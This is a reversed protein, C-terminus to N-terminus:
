KDHKTMQKIMVSQDPLDWSIGYLHNWLKTYYLYDSSIMTTDLLVIHGTTDIIYM